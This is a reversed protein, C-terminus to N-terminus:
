AHDALVRAMWSERLETSLRWAGGQPGEQVQRIVIPWYWILRRAIEFLLLSGRRGECMFVSVGSARWVARRVSASLMSNDRTLLAAFGRKGLGSLLVEDSVGELGLDWVDVIDPSGPARWRRLIDAIGRGVAEDLCIGVRGAQVM